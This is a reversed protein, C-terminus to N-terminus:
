ANLAQDPFLIKFDMPPAMKEVEEIPTVRSADADRIGKDIAALTAEDEEEMPPVSEDRNLEVEAMGRCYLRGPLSARPEENNGAFDSSKYATM